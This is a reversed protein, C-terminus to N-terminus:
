GREPHGATERRAGDQTTTGGARDDELASILGLDVLTRGQEDVTVADVYRMGFMFDAAGYDKMASVDASLDRDHAEVSVFMRLDAKAISAANYRHLPSAEDIEHMLTWTLAFIPLSDRALKLDHVRRFFQGEDSREGILLGARAVANTMVSVRGNGLRIMLTRRGNHTTMVVKDAWLFKGRPRSFRVFTLGTMIAVFAM